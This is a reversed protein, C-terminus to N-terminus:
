RWEFLLGRDASPLSFIAVAGINATSEKPALLWNWIYWDAKFILITVM